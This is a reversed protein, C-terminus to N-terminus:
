LRYESECAPCTWIEPHWTQEDEVYGTSELVVECSECCFKGAASVYVGEVCPQSWVGYTDRATLEAM